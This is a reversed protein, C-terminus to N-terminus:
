FNFTVTDGGLALLVKACQEVDDFVSRAYYHPHLLDKSGDYWLMVPIDNDHAEKIDCMTGALFSADDWRAIMGDCTHIEANIEEILQDCNEYVNDIDSVEYANVFTHTPHESALRDIWEFPDDDKSFAGTCFVKM